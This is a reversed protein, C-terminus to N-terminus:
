WYVTVGHVILMFHEYLDISIHYIVYNRKFNKNPQKASKTQDNLIDAIYKANYAAFIVWISLKKIDMNRWDCQQYVM